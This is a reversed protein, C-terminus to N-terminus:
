NTRFSFVPSHSTNGEADRSVVSWYYTTASELTSVTYSASTLQTAIVETKGDTTDLYLDYELNQSDADEGIWEFTVGNQPNSVTSGSTPSTLTAPFPAYTTIGEGALYFKWTTSTGQATTGNAKSIVYWSYPKGRELSINTTPDTVPYTKVSQNELNKVKLEYSDTNESPQWSFSVESFTDSVPTGDFCVENNAPFELTAAEPDPAQPKPGPNDGGGGCSITAISTLIMAFLAANFKITSFRM